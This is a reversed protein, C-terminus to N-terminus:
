SRGVLGIMESADELQEFRAAARRRSPAEALKAFRSAEALCLEGIPEADALDGHRAHLGAAVQEDARKPVDDLRHAAPKFHPRDEWVTLFALDLNAASLVLRPGGLRNVGYGM